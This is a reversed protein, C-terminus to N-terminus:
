LNIIETTGDIYTVKAKKGDKSLQYGKTQKTVPYSKNGIKVETTKEVTVPATTAPKPQEAVLGAKQMNAQRQAQEEKTLPHVKFPDFGSISGNGTQQLYLNASSLVDTATQDGSAKLKMGAYQMLEAPSNFYIFPTDGVKNLYNRRSETTQVMLRGDKTHVAVEIANPQAETDPKDFVGKDDKIRTIGKYTGIPTNFSQTGYVPTNKYNDPIPTGDFFTEAGINYPFVKNFKPDGTAFNSVVIPLVSGEKAKASLRVGQKQAESEGHINIDNQVSQLTKLDDIAMQKKANEIALDRDVIGNTLQQTLYKDQRGQPADNWAKEVMSPTADVIEAIKSDPLYTTTKKDGLLGGGLLTNNIEPKIDKAIPAVMELYSQKQPVLGLNIKERQSPTALRFDGMKQLTSDDHKNPDYKTAVDQLLVRQSKSANVEAMLGNMDAQFKTNAETFAPNSPDQGLQLAKAYSNALEAAKQKFYPADTDMIGNFDVKLDGVLDNAIKRKALKKQENFQIARTLNDGQREQQALLDVPAGFYVAGVSEPNNAYSINNGGAEIAM